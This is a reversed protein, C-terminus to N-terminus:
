RPTVHLVAAKEGPTAIQYGPSTQQRDTTYIKYPRADLTNFRFRGKGDTMAEAHFYDSDGARRDAPGLFVREGPVPRDTGLELVEGELVLGRQLRVIVSKGDLPLPVRLPRFDRPPNFDLVYQGVGVSLDPFHFRGEKDAGAIGWGYLQRKAKSYFGLDFRWRGQPQGDPDLVQGEAFTTSPFRLTLNTTPRAADLVVPPSLQVTLGRMAVVNYTGDLPLPTIFFRGKDDVKLPGIGFNGSYGRTKSKWVGDPFVCADEVAPTGDTNLVTGAIAGAPVVPVAIELPGDGPEVRRRAAEFWYGLMGKPSYILSGGVYADFKVVGGDLPISKDLM